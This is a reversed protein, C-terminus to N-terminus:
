ITCKYPQKPQSTLTAKLVTYTKNGTGSFIHRANEDIVFNSMPPLLVEQEDAWASSGGLHLSRTGSPLTLILLVGNRGSEDGAFDLAVEPDFTTSVFANSTHPLNTGQPSNAWTSEIHETGRYVTAAATSPSAKYILNTLTDVKECIENKQSTTLESYGSTKRLLNNIWLSEGGTYYEVVAREEDTMDESNYPPFVNNTEAARVMLPFEGLPRKVATDTYTAMKSRATLGKYVSVPM